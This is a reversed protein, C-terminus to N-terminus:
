YVKIINLLLLLEGLNNKNMKVNKRELSYYNKFDKEEFNV